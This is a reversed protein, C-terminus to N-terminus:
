RQGPVPGGREHQFRAAQARLRQNEAILEQVAAPDMRAEADCTMQVGKDSDAARQALPRSVLVQLKYM